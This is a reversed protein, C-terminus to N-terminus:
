SSRRARGLVLWATAGGALAGFLHAEWSVNAQQPVVGWFLGGYFIVAIVAGIIARASRELVGMTVLFGFWGFILGSAGVVIGDRAFLWVALGSTVIIIATALVFRRPAILLGVTGLVALPVSNAALHGFSGHLFPMLPVGVLGAASRPTLGHGLLWNVLEIMWIGVLLFLIPRLRLLVDTSM